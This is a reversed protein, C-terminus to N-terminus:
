FISPVVNGNRDILKTQGTEEDFVEEYDFEEEVVEEEAIMGKLDDPKYKDDIEHMRKANVTEVMTVKQQRKEDGTGTGSCIPLIPTRTELLEELCRNYLCRFYVNQTEELLKEVDSPDDVVKKGAAISELVERANQGDLEKREQKVKEEVEKHTDRFDDFEGKLREITIKKIAARKHPDIHGKQFEEWLFAVYDAQFEIWRNEMYSKDRNAPPPPAKLMKDLFRGFARQSFQGHCIMYRTTIPFNDMLEKYENRFVELQEAQKMTKFDPTDDVYKKYVKYMESMAKMVKERNEANIQNMKEAKKKDSASMAPPPSKYKKKTAFPDVQKNISTLYDEDNNITSTTLTSPITSTDSQNTQDDQKKEELEKKRREARSQKKALIKEKLKPNKSIKEKLKAKRQQKIQELREAEEERRLAEAEEEQKKKILANNEAIAAELFDEDDTKIHGASKQQLKLRRKQNQTLHQTSM